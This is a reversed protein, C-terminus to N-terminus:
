FVQASSSESAMLYWVGYPLFGTDSPNTSLHPKQDKKPQGGVIISKDSPSFVDGWFIIM